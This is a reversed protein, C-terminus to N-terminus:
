VEIPVKLHPAVTRWAEREAENRAHPKFGFALYLNIAPVLGTYTVLYAETYGLKRLADCAASMMPKSLGRGQAEAVIAVWHIRGRDRGDLEADNWAIISGIDSGSPDVLFLVRQSLRETDGPM